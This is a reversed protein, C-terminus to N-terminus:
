PIEKKIGPRHLEIPFEFTLSSHNYLKIDIFWTHYIIYVPKDNLTTAGSLIVDVDTINYDIGESVRKKINEEIENALESSVWYVNYDSDWTFIDASIDQLVYEIFYKQNDDYDKM